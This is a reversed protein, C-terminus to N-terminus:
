GMKSSSWAVEELSPKSQSALSRGREGEEETLAARSAHSSASRSGVKSMRVLLPRGQAYGKEEHGGETASWKKM